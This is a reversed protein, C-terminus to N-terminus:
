GQSMNLPKRSKNTKLDWIFILKDSSGSAIINPEVKNQSMCWVGLNHGTLNTIVSEKELDWRKITQDHSGSLIENTNQTNFMVCDVGALHNKLVKFPKQQKEM